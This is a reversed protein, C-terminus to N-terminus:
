IKRRFYLFIDYCANNQVAFFFEWGKAAYRNIVEEQRFASCDVETVDYQYM